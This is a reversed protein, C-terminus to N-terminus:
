FSWGNKSIIYNDDIQIANASKRHDTIEKLLLTHHGDTNDQSYMEDTIFNAAYQCIAGDPFMVDCFRTNLIPNNHYTGKVKGHKDKIWSVAKASRMEVGNKSLLLKSDIFQDYDEISDAEPM